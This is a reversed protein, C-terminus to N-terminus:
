SWHLTGDGAGIFIPHSSAGYVHRYTFSRFVQSYVASDANKRDPSPAEYAHSDLVLPFVIGRNLHIAFAFKQALWPEESEPFATIVLIKARYTGVQAQTDM